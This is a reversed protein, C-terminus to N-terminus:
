EQNDLWVNISKRLETFAERVNHGTKASTELFTVRIHQDAYKENLKNVWEEAEEVPVCEVGQERLDVKNGLIVFPVGNQRTNVFLEKIWNDLNQFTERRTIDYVLLAGFAGEYFTSRVNKFSPQGALDWIQLRYVTDDVTEQAWSFDAGITSLYSFSFGQGMYRKRLATKGETCTGTVLIVLFLLQHAATM